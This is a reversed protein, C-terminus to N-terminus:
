GRSYRGALIGESIDRAQKIRDAMGIGDRINGILILGPYRKEAKAIADLREESEVGYQPIAHEYRMIRLLDPKFEVLEFMRTLEEALINEIESDSKQFMEERRIGGMFVSLLAGEGPARGELFSSMFLAGLIDRNEIYPVLGGFGELPIGEWRHFGVAVQVVRAYRLNDIDRLLDRHIFPFAGSIGYSGITSVVMRSRIRRAEGSISFSTEFGRELPKAEIRDAGLVVREKGVSEALAGTMNDLGGKVSFLDGTAKKELEGKKEFKKRIAGGIFSGYDQELNYLKPLAYKPVILAPDGAYVGLIFPDVAYHLFSVGLRRRVMRDLTEEPDTGRPRFPEWLLRVKDRWSFLTTTVGGILGSPLRHWRGKKWVYRKKASDDPIELECGDSLEEFLEAVEGYKIVGTNPGKEFVFGDSSETHIVGGPRNEKELVLIDGEKRVLNHALTLGTLGAGIIVIDAKQNM